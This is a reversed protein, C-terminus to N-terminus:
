INLFHGHMAVPSPDYPQFQMIKKRSVSAAKLRSESAHVAEHM